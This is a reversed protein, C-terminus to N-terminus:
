KLYISGSGDGLAQVTFECGIKTACQKLSTAFKSQDSSYIVTKSYSEEGTEGLLKYNIKEGKKLAFYSAEGFKVEQSESAVFNMNLVLIDAGRSAIDISLHRYQEGPKKFVVSLNMESKDSQGEVKV